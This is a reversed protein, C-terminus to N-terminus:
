LQRVRALLSRPGSGELVAEPNAACLEAYQAPSFILLRDIPNGLHRTGTALEHSPEGSSDGVM